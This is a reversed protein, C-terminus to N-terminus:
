GLHLLLERVDIVGHGTRANWGKKRQRATDNIAAKLAAPPLAVPGWDEDPNSRIAAIIGSALASAASTGSNVTSPDDDECFQSPACIDPKRAGGWPAPGESSYGFWEENASIAGVTLVDPHANAGWISRGPGRDHRGCRGFPTFLGCNGSAFVVDIGAAVARAVTRNLSHDRNTTYNGLPSETSRDFVGWANVLIWAAQRGSKANREQIKRILADLRVEADSAFVNPRSIHEPILPVDFLTAEPAIDLVNRAIMMGHSSRPATGAQIGRTTILGGGWSEPRHAEIEERNLGRDIIVVNVNRGTLGLRSLDAVNLMRRVRRRRAFPQPPAVPVNACFGIAPDAGINRIRAQDKGALDGLHGGKVLFDHLEGIWDAELFNYAVVVSQESTPDDTVDVAPASAFTVQKDTLLGRLKEPPGLENVADVLVTVLENKNPEFNRLIEQLKGDVKLVLYQRM